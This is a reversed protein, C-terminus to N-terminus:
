GGCPARRMSQEILRSPISVLEEWHMRDASRVVRGSKTIGVCVGREAHEIVAITPDGYADLIPAVAGSKYTALATCLGDLWGNGHQVKERGCRAEERLENSIFADVAAALADGRRAQVAAREIALAREEIAHDREARRADLSRQLEDLKTCTAM